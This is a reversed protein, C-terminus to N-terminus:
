RVAHPGACRNHDGIFYFYGFVAPPMFIVPWSRPLENSLSYWPGWLMAYFGYLMPLLSVWDFQARVCADAFQVKTTHVASRLPTCLIQHWALLAVPVSVAVSM